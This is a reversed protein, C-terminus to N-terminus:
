RCSNSFTMLLNVRQQCAEPQQMAIKNLTTNGLAQAAQKFLPVWGSKDMPEIMTFPWALTPDAAFTSLWTVADRISAGKSGKTTYLNPASSNRCFWALYLLGQTDMTVYSESKTRRDELPLLGGKEIQVSVRKSLANTCVDNIVDSDKNFHALGLALVDYWTGHNNTQIREDKGNDSNLLWHLFDITWSEFAQDDEHSWIHDDDLAKLLAISDLISLLRVEDSFDIVGIGRGTNKGPIAQAYELNPNMRTANSIFWTRLIHAAHLAQTSNNHLYASLSLPVATRLVSDWPEHDLYRNIPNSYGDHDYWPLGNTCKFSPPPPKWASCDSFGAPCSTQNCPWWYTGPDCTQHSIFAVSLPSPLLTYRLQPLRAQQWLGRYYTQVHRVM